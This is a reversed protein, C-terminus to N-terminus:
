SSRCIDWYGCWDPSCHWGVSRRPFNGKQIAEWVDKVQLVFWDWDQQTRAVPVSEIALNKQRLAIDFIFPFQGKTYATPQLDQKLDLESFRRAKVKHDRTQGSKEVVDRILVFPIGDINYQEREEVMIPQLSPAVREQYMKALSIGDDKLKGPENDGWDISDFELEDEDESTKKNNVQREWSTSFTDSLEDASIIEGIIRHNLDYAVAEHYAKGLVMVGAPPKILGEIYRYYYSRPCRLYSNVQTVSLHEIM